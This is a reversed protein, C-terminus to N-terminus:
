CRTCRWWRRRGCWCCRYDGAAIEALPQPLRALREALPESLASVLPDLRDAIRTALEVAAWVPALLLLLAPAPGAAPREFFLRKPQVEYDAFGTELRDPIVGPFELAALLLAREAATVRRADVAVVPLGTRRSLRELRPQLGPLVLRDRFTVALAGARGATLPLLEALDADLSTAQAVLLVPEDGALRALALETTEADSRRLLGPTDVLEWGECRYSECAVTAGRFNSAEGSVGALSAALQTKGVNERGILIATRLSVLSM